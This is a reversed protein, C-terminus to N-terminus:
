EKGIEAAIGHTARLIDDPRVIVSYGRKGASVLITPYKMASQDLFTRHRVKQGFPSIGGTVYGTVRMAKKPDAMDLKKLGAVKALKKMDLHGSAPVIGVVIEHGDDALLTKFVIHPDLGLNHAGELGYGEKKEERRDREYHVMTFEIGAKELEVTAPTSGPRSHKKSM